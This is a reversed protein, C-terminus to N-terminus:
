FAPLLDIEGAKEDAAGEALQLTCMTLDHEDQEFFRVSAREVQALIDIIKDLYRPVNEDTESYTKSIRGLAALYEHTQVARGTALAFLRILRPDDESIHSLVTTNEQIIIERLRAVNIVPPAKSLSLALMSLVTRAAQRESMDPAELSRGIYARLFKRIEERGYNVIDNIESNEVM